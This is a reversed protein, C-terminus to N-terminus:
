SYSALFLVLLTCPKYSIRTAPGQFLRRSPKKLVVYRISLFVMWIYCLLTFRCFSNRGKSTVVNNYYHGCALFEAGGPYVAIGAISFSKNGLTITFMCQYFWALCNIIIGTLPVAMLNVNYTLSM